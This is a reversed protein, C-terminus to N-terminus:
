LLRYILKRNLAAKNEIKIKEKM